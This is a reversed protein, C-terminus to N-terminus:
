FYILCNTGQYSACTNCICRCQKYTQYITLNWVSLIYCVCMTCTTLKACTLSQLTFHNISHPVKGTQHRTGSTQCHSSFATTSALGTLVSAWQGATDWTIVQIWFLSHAPHHKSKTKRWCHQTFITDISPSQLLHGEGTVREALGRYVQTLPKRKLGAKKLMRIFYLRQKARKM